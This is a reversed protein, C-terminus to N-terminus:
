CNRTFFKKKEELFQAKEKNLEFRERALKQKEIIIEQVAKYNETDNKCLFIFERKDIEFVKQQINRLIVHSETLDILFGGSFVELTHRDQYKVWSNKFLKLYKTSMEVFNLAVTGNSSKQPVVERLDISLTETISDGGKIVPTDDGKLSIKIFEEM